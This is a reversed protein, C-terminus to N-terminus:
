RNGELADRHLLGTPIVELNRSIKDAGTARATRSRQGGVESHRAEVVSDEDVDFVGLQKCQVPSGQVRLLIGGRQGLM